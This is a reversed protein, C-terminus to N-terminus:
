IIADARGTKPSTLSVCYPLDVLIEEISLIDPPLPNTGYSVPPENVQNQDQIAQVIEMKEREETSVIYTKNPGIPLRAKYKEGKGTLLWWGSINFLTEIQEAIEATVKQKGSEMDQIKFQKMDLKEALERQKLKLDTRVEKLREGIKM